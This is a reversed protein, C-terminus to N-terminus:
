HNPTWLGTSQRSTQTWMVKIQSDGNTPDQFTTNLIFATADAQGNEFPYISQINHKTVITLAMITWASSYSGRRACANCAETYDPSVLLINNLMGHTNKVLDEKTLLTLATKYRLETTLSSNGALALSVAHFLCNGDAPTRM